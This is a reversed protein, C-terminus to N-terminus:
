VKGELVSCIVESRNVGLADVRALLDQSITISISTKLERKLKPKPGRKKM